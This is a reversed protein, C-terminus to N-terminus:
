GVGQSKIASLIDPKDNIRWDDVSFRYYIIGSVPMTATENYTKFHKYARKVWEAGKDNQWGLTQMNNHRQPNVETAIVPLNRFREPVVDLLPQYSSLHLYQWRLPDDTFKKQSDINDPDSDQTKPHVTLFDAGDINNLIRQWYDRSDSGPGFYPDIAQVGMKVTEPISFWLRNYIRAYYEPTIAQGNPYEAPNNTENGFIFGWIGKSQLMTDTTAQIFKEYEASDAAPINGKPSYHYNLRVLVKIGAEAYKTADIPRATTGIETLVLAWGKVGNNLMWDAGDKNHLGVELTTKKRNFVSEPVAVPYYDQQQQGTIRVITGYPVRGLITQNTGPNARLNIYQTIVSATLGTVELSSAYAWGRVTEGEPVSQGDILPQLYPTPDIIDYPQMTEGRQTAGDKYLTLHLHSAIAPNDKPFVNGTSDAKGLFDGGAVVDGENVATSLFHGYATRFGDRHQIYVANGYAHKESEKRVKYVTGKAVAYINSNLPAQMDVGEHGTLPPKYFEPNPVNFAQTIKVYDTPWHTFIFQDGDLDQFRSSATNQVGKAKLWAYIDGSWREGSWVVVTSKANGAYMLAHAADASYTFASRTPHLEQTVQKIEPLTTDQPLLHITHDIKVPTQRTASPNSIHNSPSSGNMNFVATEVGREHLWAFIDANWHEAGWVAVTSDSTGFYTIAHAADASFTFTSRKVHLLTTIHNLEALTTDQPLLHVTHKIQVPKTM